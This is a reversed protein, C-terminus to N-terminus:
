TLPRTPVLLCICEAGRRETHQPRGPRIMLVNLGESHMGQAPAGALCGPPQAPGCSVVAAPGTQQDRYGAYQDHMEGPAQEEVLWCRRVELCDLLHKPALFSLYM